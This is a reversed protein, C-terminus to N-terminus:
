KNMMVLSEAAIHTCLVDSWVLYLYGPNLLTYHINGSKLSGDGGGRAGAAGGVGWHRLPLLQGHDLLHCLHGAGRVLVLRTLFHAM